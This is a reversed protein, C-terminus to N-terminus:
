AASLVAEFQSDIMPELVGLFEDAGQWRAASMDEIVLNMRDFFVDAANPDKGAQHLAKQLQKKYGLNPKWGNNSEFGKRAQGRVREKMNAVTDKPSGGGISGPDPADEGTDTSPDIQDGPQPAPATIEKIETLTLGAISGLEEIDPKAQKNSLVAQLVARITEMNTNGMKRFVIKADPANPSFNFDVMRRLVYKDIYQARDGNMANLMWLYVQMHGVGLNYSGVDATRMLLIPTFLGISM